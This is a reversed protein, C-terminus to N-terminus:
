LKELRVEEGSPVSRFEREDGDIKGLVNVASAARVEDGLSAPTRGFFICFASGPPWFAINGSEVIDSANSDLQMQLNVNFYIEDGWTNARGTLPLANWFMDASSGETLIAEMRLKETSIIIKREPM